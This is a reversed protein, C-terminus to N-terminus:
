LLFHAQNLLNMSPSRPLHAPRGAGALLLSSIQFASPNCRGKRPLLEPRPGTPIPLYSFDLPPWMKIRALSDRVFVRGRGEPFQMHVQAFMHHLAVCSHPTQRDLRTSRGRHQEWPLPETQSPDLCAYMDRDTAVLFPQGTSCGFLSISWFTFYPLLSLQAPLQCSFSM